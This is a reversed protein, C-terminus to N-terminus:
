RREPQEQIRRSRRLRLTLRRLADLSVFLVMFGIMGPILIAYFLNVYYVLPYHERDPIFHSTWSAPFNAEADPHCRRCTQLLNERVVSSNPDDAPRIDHVGHCDFCVAKNTPQDPSEREFLTVTTGHFDAVYTNFVQTSIGYKAMLAEDAHCKGCVEPSTLRFRPQHPDQISHVNHCDICTPVDPNAEELLAAGHVSQRYLDFIAAHCQRCALSINARREALHVVNHAGHCDTCLPANRNGAALERAHVSDLTAAYQDPHCDRCVRYRDVQFDRYDNAVLPPHPYDGVDAHCGLCPVGKQGHASAAFAQADVVLSLEEGSPLTVTRGPVTHCALCTANPDPGQQPPAAQARGMLLVGLLIILPAINRTRLAPTM